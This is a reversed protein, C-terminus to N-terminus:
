RERERERARQAVRGAVVLVAVLIANAIASLLSVTRSDVLGGLALRGDHVAVVVPVFGLSLCGALVGGLVLAIWWGRGTM